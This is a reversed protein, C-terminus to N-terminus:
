VTTIIPSVKTASPHLVLRGGGSQQIQVLRPMSRDALSLSQPCSLRRAPFRLSTSSAVLWVPRANTWNVLIMEGELAWVM